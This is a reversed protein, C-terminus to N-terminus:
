RTATWLVATLGAVELLGIRPLYPILPDSILHM